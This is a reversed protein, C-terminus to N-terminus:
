VVATLAYIQNLDSLSNKALEYLTVAILAAAYMINSRKYM